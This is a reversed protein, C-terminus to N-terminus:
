NYKLTFPKEVFVPIKKAAAKIIIPYHLSPPTAVILGDLSRTELLDNYDKFTKVDLYKDMMSLVLGSSDAVSDIVVNPHSNIISYHTIGMRGMGIIGISLKDKQM